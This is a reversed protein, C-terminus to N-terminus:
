LEILECSPTINPRQSVASTILLGHHCAASVDTGCQQPMLVKMSSLSCASCCILACMRDVEESDVWWKM